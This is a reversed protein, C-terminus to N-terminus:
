RSAVVVAVLTCFAAVVSAAALGGGTPAVADLVVGFALQGAVTGLTLRLVGLRAVALAGLAIYAAGGAGGLYLGPNGPWEGIAPSRALVVAALAATGVLFSVSAAVLPEGSHRNLHGNAAQQAATAFGAAGVLALLLPRVEGTRGVAGVVLGGVAIASGLLRPPTLAQRGRPSIGLADVLLSGTTAGAVIAVATLAV